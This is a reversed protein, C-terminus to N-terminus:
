GEGAALPAGSYGSPQSSNAPATPASNYISAMKPAQTPTSQAMGPQGKVGMSPKALVNAGYFGPEFTGNLESQTVPALMGPFLPGKGGIMSQRDYFEQLRMGSMTVDHSNGMMDTMTGTLISSAITGDANLKTTRTVGNGLTDQKLLKPDVQISMMQNYQDTLKLEEAPALKKYPDFAPASQLEKPIYSMLVGANIMGYKDILGAQMAKNVQATMPNTTGKTLSDVVQNWDTTPPPPTNNTTTGSGKTSASAGVLNAGNLPNGVLSIQSTLSNPTSPATTSKAPEAPPPAMMAKILPALSPDLLPDQGKMTLISSGGLQPNKYLDVVLGNGSARMGSEWKAFAQQRQASVQPDVQLISSPDKMSYMEKFGELTVDVGYPNTPSKIGFMQMSSLTDDKTMQAMKMANWQADGYLANGNKGSLDYNIAADQYGAQQMGITKNWKQAMDYSAITAAGVENPLWQKIQESTTHAGLAAGLIGGIASQQSTKIAADVGLKSAALSQDAVYKSADAAINAADISAQAQTIMADAQANGTSTSKNGAGLSPFGKLQGLSQVQAVGNLQNKLMSAPSLNVSGTDPNYAGGTVSKIVGKAINSVSDFMGM